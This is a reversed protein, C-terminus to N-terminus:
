YMHGKSGEEEKGGSMGEVGREGEGGVGEVGRERTLIRPPM